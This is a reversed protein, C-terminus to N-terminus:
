QRENGEDKRSGYGYRYDFRSFINEVDKELKEIDKCLEKVRIDLEVKFNDFKTKMNSFEMIMKILYIFTPIFVAAFFMILYNDPIEAM